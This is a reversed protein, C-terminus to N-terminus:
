TYFIILCFDYFKRRFFRPLLLLLFIELVGITVKTALPSAVLICEFLFDCQLFDKGGAIWHNRAPVTLAPIGAPNGHKVYDGSAYFIGIIRTKLSACQM